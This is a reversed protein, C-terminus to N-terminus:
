SGVLSDLHFFDTDNFRVLLTWHQGGSALNPNTNDSMPLFILTNAKDLGLPGFMDQLDEQDNQCYVFSNSVAPDVLCIEPSIEYKHTLYEYYFNM